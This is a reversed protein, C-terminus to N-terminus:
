QFDRDISFACCFILDDVVVDEPKVPTGAAEFYHPNELCYTEGIMNFLMKKSFKVPWYLSLNEGHLHVLLYENDEEIYDIHRRAIMSGTPLLIQQLVQKLSSDSYNSPKTLYRCLIILRRLSM